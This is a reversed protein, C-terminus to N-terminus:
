VKFDEIKYWAYYRGSVPTFKLVCFDPDTYAKEPYANKFKNEWYEEKINRDNVIEMTGKLSCGKWILKRSFFYVSAKPNSLISSAFRSSTNTCFYMESLTKRHKGPVVAKTAPYGEADVCGLIFTNVSKFLKEAKEKAAM